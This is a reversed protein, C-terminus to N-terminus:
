NFKKDRVLKKLEWVKVCSFIELFVFSGMSM